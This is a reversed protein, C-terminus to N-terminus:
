RGRHLVNFLMTYKYVVVFVSMFQSADANYKNLRMVDCKPQAKEM